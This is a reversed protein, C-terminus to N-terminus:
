NFIFFHNNSPKISFIFRRLLLRCLFYILEISGGGGLDIGKRALEKVTSVSESVIRQSILQTENQLQADLSSMFSHTDESRSAAWERAGSAESRGIEVVRLKLKTWLIRSSRNRAAFTLINSLTKITQKM